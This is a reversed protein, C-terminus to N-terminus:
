DQTVGTKSAEVRVFECDEPCIERGFAETINHALSIVVVRRKRERRLKHGAVTEVEECFCVTAGEVGHCKTRAPTTAILPEKVRVKAFAESPVPRHILNSVHAVAASEDPYSVAIRYFEYQRVVTGILSDKAQLHTEHTPIDVNDM